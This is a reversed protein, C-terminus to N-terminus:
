VFSYLFYYMSFFSVRSLCSFCRNLACHLYIKATFLVGCATVWRISIISFIEKVRVCVVVPLAAGVRVRYKCVPWKRLPVEFFVVVVVFLAVFLWVLHGTKMRVIRWSSGKDAPLLQVRNEACLSVRLSHDCMAALFLWFHFFDAWVVARVAFLVM